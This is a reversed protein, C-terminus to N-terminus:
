CPLDILDAAALRALASRHFNQKCTKIADDKNENSQGGVALGCDTVSSTRTKRSAEPLWKALSPLKSM